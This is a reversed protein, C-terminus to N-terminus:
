QICAFVNEQTQHSQCMSNSRLIKHQSVRPIIHNHKEPLKQRSILIYIRSVIGNPGGLRETLTHWLGRIARYPHAWIGWIARYHHASAGFYSDLIPWFEGSREIPTPGLGWIARSTPGFDGLNSWFPLDFGGFAEVPTRGFEGFRELPIFEVWTDLHWRRQPRFPGQPSHM